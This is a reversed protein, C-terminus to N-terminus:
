FFDANFDGSKESGGVGYILVSTWLLEEVKKQLDGSLSWQDAYERIVDGVKDLAETYIGFMDEPPGTELRSDALIRALITFAHVDTKTGEVHVGKAFQSALENEDQLFWSSPIIQTSQSPAGHM